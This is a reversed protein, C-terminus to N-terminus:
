KIFENICTSGLVLIAGIISLVSLPEHLLFVSLVIAIIPDIYSMLGITESDLHQLSSFYLLYSIGTHVIGVISILIITMINLKIDIYEKTIFIYILMILAAFVLQIITKDMPDVDKIYKNMLVVSGYLLAASLGLIVGRVESFAFSKIELIGSVFIMGIFAFIICLIQKINLKENFLFISAIMVFIPAFYYCLTATAITTYKYSEFLLIWNIGIFIGSLVLPFFSSKITSFHIKQKKLLMFIILFLSGILGRTFAIVSSSLPIYKVFLGITGFVSMSAILQLKYKNM